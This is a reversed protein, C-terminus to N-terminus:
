IAISALQIMLLYSRSSSSQYTPGVLLCLCYRNLTSASLLSVELMRKSFCFLRVQLVSSLGCSTLVDFGPNHFLNCYYFLLVLLVCFGISFHNRGCFACVRCGRTRNLLLETSEALIACYDMEFWSMDTSLEILCNIALGIGDTGGLCVFIRLADNGVSGQLKM